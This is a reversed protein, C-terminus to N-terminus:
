LKGAWSWQAQMGIRPHPGERTAVVIANESCGRHAHHHYCTIGQHSALRRLRAVFRMRGADCPTDLERWLLHRVTVAAVVSSIICYAEKPPRCPCGAGKFVQTWSLGDIFSALM